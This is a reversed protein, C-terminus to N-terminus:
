FTIIQYGKELYTAMAPHGKMEDALRIGCTQNYELVGLQASCAKCICDFLGLDKAKLYMVNKSEQLEMILKVAEGEMVIKVDMGKSNMDLANLLVHTFCMKDGRFAFIAIKDM